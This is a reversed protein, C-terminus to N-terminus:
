SRAMQAGYFQPAVEVLWEERIQTVGRIYTKKTFLLETYVVCKPAPNRGFMTSHPHVSVEKGGLKTKYRGRSPGLSGSGRGDSSPAAHMRSAAQLFFGACICKFLIVRDDGCSADVDMGLGHKATPRGCISRLQNRVDHARVLARGSIYNRSCWEGHMIMGRQKLVTTSMRGRKARSNGNGNPALYVAERRWANYVEVLTPIDGEHSAFRKHASAAKASVGGQLDGSPRYFINEASLMSVVTLIESTCEYRQSELLLHAFVPDVPLKAMRKGHDTIKMQRDLAGLGYLIEFAKRLGSPSPPTLFDFKSPDHVGMGKLMLVVQALNVRQIEPSTNKELADFSDETYLRFCVGASVRGARGARQAAQAKSVDKVTLSEMGTTGNFERMKQKGCDVVYRIGDLTVPEPNM